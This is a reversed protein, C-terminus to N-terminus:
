FSEDTLMGKAQFDNENLLTCKSINYKKKLNRDISIQFNKAQVSLGM